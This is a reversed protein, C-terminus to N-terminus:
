CGSSISRAHLINFFPFFNQLLRSMFHKQLAVFYEQKQTLSGWPQHSKKPSVAVPRSLKMFESYGTIQWVVM